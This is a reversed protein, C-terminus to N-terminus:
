DHDNEPVQELYEGDYEMNDATAVQPAPVTFDRKEAYRNLFIAFEEQLHETLESILDNNGNVMKCIKPASARAFSELDNKFLMARQALAIEFAGREVYFGAAVQAKIEWHHAQAEMKRAEAENRRRQMADTSKTKQENKPKLYNMAYQDVDSAYFLRDERPKIKRARGHEYVTSKSVMYGMSHLYATVMQLNRFTKEDM